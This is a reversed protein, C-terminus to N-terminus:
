ALLPKVALVSADALAKALEMKADKSEPWGVINGHRPPPEFPLVQLKNARIVGAKIDARAHLTETRGAGAEVGM